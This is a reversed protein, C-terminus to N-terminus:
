TNTVFYSSCIGCLVFSYFVCCEMMMIMLSDDDVQRTIIIINDKYAKIIPTSLGVTWSNRLQDLGIQNSFVNIRMHCQM